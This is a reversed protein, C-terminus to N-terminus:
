PTVIKQMQMSYVIRCEEPRIIKREGEMETDNKFLLNVSINTGMSAAEQQATLVLENENTTGSYVRVLQNNVIAKAFVSNGQYSIEWIETKNDGVASGPCTTETCVMKVSWKGILFPKQSNISDPPIYRKLLSDLMREKQELDTQKVTLQNEILILQQEKQNISDMKENLEKERVRSNCATLLTIVYTLFIFKMVNM